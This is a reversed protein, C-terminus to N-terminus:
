RESHFLCKKIAMWIAELTYPKKIISHAGLELTKEVDMSTSYGSAIIAKQGPRIALMQEYVERGNMGDGLLMDLVVVDFDCEQFMAIAEEGSQALSVSYGLMKAIESGIELLEPEDDVLLPLASEQLIAGCAM